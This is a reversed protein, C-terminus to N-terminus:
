TPSAGAQKKSGEDPTEPVFDIIDGFNCNCVSCIRMLVELAVIENRRLKTMTGTAVGIKKRLDAKSMNLDVLLKWLRKYSIAMKCRM